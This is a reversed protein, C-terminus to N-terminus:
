ETMPAEAEEAHRTQLKDLIPAISPDANLMAKRRAQYLTKVAEKRADPTTVQKMADRAAVVAPDNKVQDHLAKVQQREAETLNGMGKAGSNDRKWPRLMQKEGKDLRGEKKRERKTPMIKALIAEVSPDIKIMADNMGKRAAEMTDHAEKMRQQLSPDQEIAKDHAEKLQARETDSLQAMPGRREEPPSPPNGENSLANTNPEMQARLPALAIFLLLLAPLFIKKM